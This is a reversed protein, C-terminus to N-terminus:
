RFTACHLSVIRAEVLTLWLIECSINQLGRFNGVHMRQGLHASHCMCRISFVDPRQARFFAAVSHFAGSMVNAGDSAFGTLNELPIQDRRLSEIILDYLTEASGDPVEIYAYLFSAVRGDLITRACVALSKSASVDTAEDALLSFPNGRLHQVAALRSQKGLVHRITGATKTACLRVKELTRPSKAKQMLQVLPGALSFALNHEVIFEAVLLEFRAVDDVSDDSQSGDESPKNRLHGSSTSHRIMNSKSGKLDVSCWVCRAAFGDSEPECIWEALRVDEQWSEVFSRASATSSQSSM